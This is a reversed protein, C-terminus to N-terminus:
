RLPEETAEVPHLEALGLAEAREHVLFVVASDDVYVRRYQGLRSLGRQLPGNNALYPLSILIAPPEVDGSADPEIGQTLSDLVHPDGVVIQGEIALYRELTAHTNVELRADAFVKQRPGNHFIYVAAAGEDIAYCRRPMGPRGLFEAAEHPFANPIEGVGFWRPLEAPRMVSLLNCPVGLLLIGLAAATSVPGLRLRGEGPRHGALWEGVNARLVTTAALGFLMANRNAAWGLWAFLAFLSLRYLDLRGRVLRPVFSLCGLVFLVLLMCTTLNQTLAGVGFREIFEGLGRFEGSFQAYFPKEPGEIRKVLTFPLLPGDFGYPNALAAAAMLGGVLALRYFTAKTPPPSSDDGGSAFWWRAVEGLFFCNWLVLGLVFLGQVNIWLLQIAPLFWLLRPRARAHFLITLEAALFLFSFMEPRVLNRESFILLAPLWCAAAQWAPWGRRTAMLASAFTAVAFLSKTVVLAPTGGLHWVAAAFLQFGWHLDTWPSDPNTYTFWDTRPVQGREYILQGTRLHWWIDPDELQVCGVLFVLVLFAAYWPAEGWRVGDSWLDRWSPTGGAAPAAEHSAPRARATM